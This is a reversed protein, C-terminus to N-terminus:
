IQFRKYAVEERLRGHGSKSSLMKFKENNKVEWLHGSSLYHLLFHIILHQLMMTNRALVIPFLVLKREWFQSKCLYFMADVNSCPNNTEVTVM